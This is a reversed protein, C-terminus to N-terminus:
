GFFDIIHNLVEKEANQNKQISVDNILSKSSSALYQHLKSPKSGSSVNIIHTDLIINSAKKAMANINM